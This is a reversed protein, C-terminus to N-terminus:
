YKANIAIIDQSQPVTWQPFGSPNYFKHTGDRMISQASDSHHLLGLTHGIEHCSLAAWIGTSGSAYYTTNYYKNFKVEASFIYYVNNYLTSLADWGTDGYNAMKMDIDANPEYYTETLTPCDTYSNWSLAGSRISNRVYVSTLTSINTQIFVYITDTNWVASIAPTGGARPLSPTSFLENNIYHPRFIGDRHKALVGQYGGSVLYYDGFEDNNDAHYLYLRYTHSLLLPSFELPFPTNSEKYIGGTQLVRVMDGPKIDGSIVKEVNINVNTFVIDNRLETYTSAVTGEIILESASELEAETEYKRAWSINVSNHCEDDGSKNNGVGHVMTTCVAIAILVASM